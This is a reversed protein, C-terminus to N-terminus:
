LSAANQSGLRPPPSISLDELLGRFRESWTHHKLAHARGRGAITSRAEPRAMYYRLKESLDGPASWTELHDGVKYLERLQPCDQTLYFGGSMPVEFERLRVQRREGPTGPVGRFHTFGINVAAGEVIASFDPQAYRGLIAASPITGADTDKGHRGLRATVSNTLEGIGEERLRPAAYHLVDHVNKRWHHTNSADKRGGVWNNGYIRLPFGERAIQGLVTRRYHWPSGLYVVGDFALTSAPGAGNVPPNSAMPLYYPHIGARKLATWHDEHACAIRDFYKGTRLVRYWQGVLDVHYNVIPVGLKRLRRITGVELVDDYIVCFILDLRGDAALREAVDLLRQNTEHNTRLGERDWAKGMHTGYFFEEVGCGLRRWGESLNGSMWGDRCIVTLVHMAPVRGTGTMNTLM